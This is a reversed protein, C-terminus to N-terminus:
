APKPKRRFVGLTEEVEPARLLWACGLYVAAVLLVMGGMWGARLAFPWDDRYPLAVRSLFGAVLATAFGALILRALSRLMESGGIPGTRRRLLVVLLGFNIFFGASTALAVGAHKMPGSLALCLAVFALLDFTAVVVPTKTDQLAYFAQTLIKVGGIAFIGVAYWALALATGDVGALDFRGGFFVVHVIPRAFLALGVTAAITVFASLRLALSITRKYATLDKELAQESLSPLVARTLSEVFGGRVLDAIRFALYNYTVYADGMAALVSSSVLFNLQGVGYGYLRPAVLLATKRVDPDAFPSGGFRFGLRRALPLQMAFQFTGGLLVGAVLAHLPPVGFPVLLLASAVITLNWVAPTAASLSFRGKANLYAELLAAASIVVVYPFLIRTLHVTLDFKGPTAKFGKAFLTVFFPAAAIGVITLAALVLLLLTFVRGAYAGEEGPREREVKKAIPVLAGPLGGEGVVARFANPIRLATVFADSLASAGLLKAVVAERVVGAVRSVFTWATIGWASRVLAQGHDPTSM